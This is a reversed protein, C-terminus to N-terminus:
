CTINLGLLVQIPGQAPVPEEVKEKDDQLSVTSAPQEEAAAPPEAESTPLDLGVAHLM